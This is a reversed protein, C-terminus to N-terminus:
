IETKINNTKETPLWANYPRQSLMANYYRKKGTVEEGLWDPREFSEDESTLEIEAVVLGENCGHFVDVEWTHGQFPVLHRIKDIVGSECLPLLAEADAVPIEYEFESRAVGAKDSAGKITLFAKNRRIRVRVTKDPAACLYGQVIRDARTVGDSFNGSVLFKREIEVAM